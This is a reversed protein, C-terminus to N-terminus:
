MMNSPLEFYSSISDDENNNERVIRGQANIDFNEFSFSFTSSTVNVSYDVKIESKRTKIPKVKGFCPLCMRHACCKFTIGSEMKKNSKPVEKAIAESKYFSHQKKNENGSSPRLDFEDLVAHTKGKNNSLSMSTWKKHYNKHTLNGVKNPLEVSQSSSSFKHHSPHLQPPPHFPTTEKQFGM